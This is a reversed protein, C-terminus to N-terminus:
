LNIHISRLGSHSNIAIIVYKSLYAHTVIVNYTCCICSWTIGGLRFVESRCKTTIAAERGGQGQLYTFLTDIQYPLLFRSNVSKCSEDSRALTPPQEGEVTELTCEGYSLQLTQWAHHISEWQLSGSNCSSHLSCGLISFALKAEPSQRTLHHPYHFGPGMGKGWFTCCLCLHQRAYLYTCHQSATTWIAHM